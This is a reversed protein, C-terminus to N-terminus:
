VTQQLNHARRRCTLISRHGVAVSQGGEVGAEKVELAATRVHVHGANEDEFALRGGVVLQDVRDLRAHVEHRAIALLEGVHRVALPAGNPDVVRVEVGAVVHAVACQGRGPGVLLQAVKATTLMLQFVGHVATHRGTKGNERLIRLVISLGDHIPLLPALWTHRRNM